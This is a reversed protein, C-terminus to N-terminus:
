AAHELLHASLDILDRPKFPKSIQADAGIKRTAELATHGSVQDNLGASMAIISVKPWTAKIMRMGKFGGMGPMFVDCLVLDVHAIDVNQFAEEMSAAQSVRYGADELAKRAFSRVTQSDDVILVHRRRAGSSLDADCSQLVDGILQETFPKRVVYDAGTRRASALTDEIAERNSGATMLVISANPALKRFRDVHLLTNHAGVFVDLFLAHAAMQTLAESAERVTEFHITTWDHSEIMRAIIQAQTRSDELILATKTM